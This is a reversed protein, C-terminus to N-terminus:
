WLVIENGYESECVVIDAADGVPRSEGHQDRGAELFQSIKGLSLRGDDGVTQGQYQRRFSDQRSRPLTVEGEREDRWHHKGALHRRAAM